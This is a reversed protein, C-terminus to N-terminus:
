YMPARPNDEAARSPSPSDIAEAMKQLRKIENKLKNAKEQVDPAFAMLKELEEGQPLTSKLDSQLDRKHFDRSVDTEYISTVLLLHAQMPVVDNIRRTVAKSYAYLSIQLDAITAEQHDRGQEIARSYYSMIFCDPIDVVDPDNGKAVVQEPPSYVRNKEACLYAQEALNGVKTRIRDYTEDRTDRKTLEGKSLYAVVEEAKALRKDLFKDLRTSLYLQLEPRINTVKEVRFLLVLVEKVCKRVNNVLAKCANALKQQYARRFLSIEANPIQARIDGGGSGEIEKQIHAKYSDTLWQPAIQLVQDVFDKYLSKTRLAINLNERERDLLELDLNDRVPEAGNNARAEFHRQVSNLTKEIIEQLPAQRDHEPMDAKLKELEGSMTDLRERISERTSRLAAEVFPSQAEMLRQGLNNIGWSGDALNLGYKQKNMRFFEDEKVRAEQQTLKEDAPNKTDPNWVPFVGRKAKKRLNESIKGIDDDFTRDVNTLVCFTREGTPDVARAENMAPESNVDSAVTKVLLILNKNNPDAFRNSFCEQTAKQLEPTDYSIGPLDVLTMTPGRARVMRLYITAESNVKGEEALGETLEDIKTGLGELHDGEFRERDRDLDPSIGILAYPQTVSADVVLNLQLAVRTTMTKTRPLKVGALAQLVSSKGASQGGCIVIDPFQIDDDEAQLSRVEEVVRLLNCLKTSDFEDSFAM